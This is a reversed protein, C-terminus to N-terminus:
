ARELARSCAQEVEEVTVLRTCLNQQEVCEVLMCGRCPVDHDLVVHRAGYPHWGTGRDRASFVAICPIGAAAALHLAGSDNGVFARCRALLGTTERPALSYALAEHDTLFGPLHIIHM